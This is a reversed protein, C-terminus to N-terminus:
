VGGGRREREGWVCVLGERGFFVGEGFFCRGGGLFFVWRARVRAQVPTKKLLASSDIVSELDYDTAPTCTLTPVVSLGVAPYVHLRCVSHVGTNM